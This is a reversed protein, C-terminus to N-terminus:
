FDYGFTSLRYTTFRERNHTIHYSCGSDLIWVDSLQSSPVAPADGESNNSDDTHVVNAVEHQKKLKLCDRKMHCFEKCKYCWIKKNNRSKSRSDRKGFIDKM